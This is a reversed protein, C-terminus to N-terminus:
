RTIGLKKEWAEHEKLSESFHHMNEGEDWIFYYYKTDEPDLAADLSALGPNCIPGAPLGKHTYTNYPSNNIQTSTVVQGKSRYDVDYKVTADSQLYPYKGPNRLRNYFVSAITYGELDSSTEKEVISAMTVLEYITYNTGYRKNLAVVKDIMRDTFRNDFGNLLKKIVREAEDGKYFKYTDPFLFGELCYKHGRPIGELFWFDGLDGEAAYKELETASCVGKKELLAFIQACSYGEPILVDIEDYKTGRYSLANIIANYDYVIMKSDDPDDQMNFEITGRLLNEGKGTVKAFLTFLKPYEILGSNKLKIAVDDLTDEPGVEITVSIGEKGLALLDTACLWVTRGLSVGIALILFGWIFTSLIHPIGWLGYPDKKKKRRKKRKKKETAPEEAPLEEPETEEEYDEVPEEPQQSVPAEEEPTDQTDDELPLSDFEHLDFAPGQPAPEKEEYGEMPMQFFRTTNYVNEEPAAPEAPIDETEQPQELAVMELQPIEELSAPELKPVVIPEPHVQSEAITEQIIQELEVEDPRILGAEKMAAEDPVLDTQPMNQELDLKKMIDNLMEEVM